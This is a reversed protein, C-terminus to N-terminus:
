RQNTLCGIEGLLKAAEKLRLSADHTVEDHPEYDAMEELYSVLDEKRVYVVKAIKVFRIDTRNEASEM